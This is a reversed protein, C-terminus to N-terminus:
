QLEADGIKCASLKLQTLKGSSNNRSLFKGLKTVGAMSNGSLNLSTITASDANSSIKDLLVDISEHTINTHKLNIKEISSLSGVSDALSKILGDTLNTYSLNLSTLSTLQQFCEKFSEEFTASDISGFNCCKIRIRQIYRGCSGIAKFFEIPGQSGKISNSSFNLDTLASM